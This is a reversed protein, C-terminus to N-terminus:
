PGVTRKVITIPNPYRIGGLPTDITPVARIEVQTEKTGVGALGLALDILDQGSQNFYRALDLSVPLRVDTTQGPQFIYATDLSGSVTERGNLNLTWAFRLLRATTNNEAPNTGLVHIDFTLPMQGRMAAAGIRAADLPSIDSPRRVNDLNVGALRITALRDIAFDVQRLATVSRMTACGATLVSAVTLVTVARLAARRTVTMTRGPGDQVTENM